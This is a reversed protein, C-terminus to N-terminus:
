PRWLSDAQGLAVCLDREGANFCPGIEQARLFSATLGRCRDPEFDADRGFSCNALADQAHAEGRAFLDAARDFAVAGLPAQAGDGLRHKGKRAALTM